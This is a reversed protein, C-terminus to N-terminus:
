GVGLLGGAQAFQENGLLGLANRKVQIQQTYGHPTFIHKVHNLYYVGSHTEGVGRITVPKRPMLVHGYAFAEVDGSGFVFWENRDYLGQCLRTMEEVGTASNKGVFVKRQRQNSTLFSPIDESGYLTHSSSQITVAHVEKSQRDVQLMAINSPAVSDVNLRFNNLTTENGYHVSLVPQPEDDVMPLGFYGTDGQVYCEYGNRLALRKLFQMDTERQLITSVTEEHVVATDTVQPTLQYNSFIETAIDSDKRKPWDKLIEERDLLVSKDVGYIELYAERPSQGFHPVIRTIFGKFIETTDDQFGATITIPKWPKLNDSDLNTWEDGYQIMCLQLKFRSALDDDIEVELRMLDTYVNEAESNDIEIQFFDNPM